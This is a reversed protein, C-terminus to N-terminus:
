KVIWCSPIGVANAVKYEMEFGLPLMPYLDCYESFLQVGLIPNSYSRILTNSDYENVWVWNADIVWNSQITGRVLKRVEERLYDYLIEETPYKQRDYSNSFRNNQHYQSCEDRYWEPFDLSLFDEVFDDVIAEEDFGYKRIANVLNELPERRSVSFLDQATPILLKKWPIDEVYDWLEEYLVRKIVDEMWRAMEYVGYSYWLSRFNSEFFISSEGISYLDQISEYGTELYSYLDDEIRAYFDELYDEYNNYSYGTVPDYYEEENDEEDEEDDLYCLDIEDQRQPLKRLTKLVKPYIYEFIKLLDKYVEWWTSRLTGYDIAMSGEETPFDSTSEAKQVLIAVWVLSEILGEWCDPSQFIRIEWTVGSKHRTIYGYKRDLFTNPFVHNNPLKRGAINGLVDDGSNCLFVRLYQAAEESLCKQSIHIHLGAGNDPFNSSLYEDFSSRNEAVIRLWDSIRFPIGKFEADVTSDESFIGYNLLASYRTLSFRKGSMEVELGIVTRWPNYKRYTNYGQCRYKECAAEWGELSRKFERTAHKVVDVNYRFLDLSENDEVFKGM